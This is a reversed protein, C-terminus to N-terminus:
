KFVDYDICSVEAATVMQTSDTVLIAAVLSLALLIPVSNCATTQARQVSM